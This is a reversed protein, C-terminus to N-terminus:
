STRAKGDSIKPCHRQTRLMDGTVAAPGNRLKVPNGTRGMPAGYSKWINYFVPHTSDLPYYPPALSGVLYQTRGAPTRLWNKPPASRRPYGPAQRPYSPLVQGTGAAGGKPFFEVQWGWRQSLVGGVMGGKPFTVVRREGRQFLPALPSKGENWVVELIGGGGGCRNRAIGGLQPLATGYVMDPLIHM